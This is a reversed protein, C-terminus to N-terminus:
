KIIKKGLIGGILIGPICVFFGAACIMAWDKGLHTTFTSVKVVATYSDKSGLSFPVLFNGWSIAWALLFVTLLEIKIESIIRKMTNFISLSDLSCMSQIEEFRKGSMLYLLWSCIPFIGLLLIFVITFHEFPRFSFKQISIIAPLIIYTQPLLVLTLLTFSVGIATKRKLGAVWMSYFAAFFISIFAVTSSYIISHFISSRFSIEASKTGTFLRIFPEITINSSLSRQLDIGPKRTGVYLLTLPILVVV